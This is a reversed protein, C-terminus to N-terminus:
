DEKKATKKAKRAERKAAIFNATKDVAGDTVPKLKDSVYWGVVGGAIDVTMSDEELSTYDVLADKTLQSTKAAVISKIVFKTVNRPTFIENTMTFEKLPQSKTENYPTFFVRIPDGIGLGRANPTVQAGAIQSGM